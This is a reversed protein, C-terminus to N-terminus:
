KKQKQNEYHEEIPKRIHEPFSEFTPYTYNDTSQNTLKALVYERYNDPLIVGELMFELYSERSDTNSTDNIHTSNLIAKLLYPYSLFINMSTVLQRIKQTSLICRLQKGNIDYRIIGEVWPKCALFINNELHMGGYSYFSLIGDKNFFLCPKIPLCSFDNFVTSANTKYYGSNWVESVLQLTNIAPRHVLCRRSGYKHQLVELFKELCDKPIEPLQKRKQSALALMLQNHAKNTAAFSCISDHDAYYSTILSWVLANDTLVTDTKQIQMSLISIGFIFVGGVFFKKAKYKM